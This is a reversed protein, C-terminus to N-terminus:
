RRIREQYKRSREQLKQLEECRKRLEYSYIVGMLAAFFLAFLTYGVTGSLLDIGICCLLILILLTIQLVNM